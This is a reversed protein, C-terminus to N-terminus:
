EAAQRMQPASKPGRVLRGPLKGTAVGNRSVIDGAVITATYGDTKQMLRRGNSPLDYAVTPAHLRLRAYNSLYLQDYRGKPSYIAIVQLIDPTASGRRSVRRSSWM